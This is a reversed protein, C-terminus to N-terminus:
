KGRRGRRRPADAESALATTPPPPRPVMGRLRNALPIERGCALWLINRHHPDVHSITVYDEIDLALRATERQSIGLQTYSVDIGLERAAANLREAFEPQTMGLADRIERVRGAREANVGLPTM